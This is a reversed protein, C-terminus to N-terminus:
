ASGASVVAAPGTGREGAVGLLRAVMRVQAALDLAGGADAGFVYGDGGRIERSVSALTSARRSITSSLAECRLSITYTYQM